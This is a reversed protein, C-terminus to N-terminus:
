FIGELDSAEFYKKFREYEDTAREDVHVNEAEIEIGNPTVLKQGDKYDPGFTKVDMRIQFAYERNKGEFFYAFAERMCNMATDIAALDSSKHYVYLADHLTFPLYLGEEACLLDAKRMIAAGMGQIPFNGVSRKNDNDGWMYWGDSLNLRGDLEYNYRIDEKYEMLKSYTEEFLDIQKQAEEPTWEVGTDATLKRSLGYNTMDYSLGLVTSKCANREAKYKEKTGEPPVMRALKAFALYVDGSLYSDIMNQDESMLGSIFFEESGYDIGTIAYGKPPYILSRTWAPKLPIFGTSGPQSRSSQSGFTNMYPRVWGDNGVYNWFNKKESPIFGNLAEKLKLYRLMQAGFNGRPYSHRYNFYKEFAEKSLSLAGGDTKKWSKVDVNNEIWERSKNQDWSFKREKLNYKFPRIDPFQSNIDRQCEELILPVQMSFNKTKEIDIPYGKSERISTLAQYSGRYKMEELLDDPRYSAGLLHQYEMKIKEFMTRLHIVDQTCYKQIADKQQLTFGNPKSIILDRMEDKHEQDRVVGTLKYTAEVLSHTPKFSNATDEETREWKPPPRRTNKIKGKVLQPGYMLRDNHNTLCRYEIFLDIWEFTLPSLGLSYISRGEAVTQWGIFTYAENKLQLLYSKLKNKEELNKHLWFEKVTGEYTSISCCVLNLVEEKTDNFEFDIFIFKM